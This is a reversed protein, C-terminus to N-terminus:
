LDGKIKILADQLNAGLRKIMSEYDKKQISLNQKLNDNVLKAHINIESMVISKAQQETLAQSLQNDIQFKLNKVSSELQFLKIDVPGSM